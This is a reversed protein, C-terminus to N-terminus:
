GLSGTILEIYARQCGTCLSHHQTIDSILYRIDSYNVSILACADGYITEVLSTVMKSSHLDTEIVNRPMESWYAVKNKKSIKWLIAVPPWKPHGFIVKSWM